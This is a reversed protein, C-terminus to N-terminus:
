DPANIPPVACTILFTTLAFLQALSLSGDIHVTWDDDVNVLTHPDFTDTLAVFADEQSPTM